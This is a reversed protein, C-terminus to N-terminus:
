AKAEQKIQFDCVAKTLAPSGMKQAYLYKAVYVICRGAVTAQRAEANGGPATAADAAKHLQDHIEPAMASLLDHTLLLDHMSSKLEDLMNPDLGVRKMLFKVTRSDKADDINM